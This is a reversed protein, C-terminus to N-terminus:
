IEVFSNPESPEQNTPSNDDCISNPVFTSNLVLLSSLMIKRLSGGGDVMSMHSMNGDILTMMGSIVMVQARVLSNDKDQELPTALCASHKKEGVAGALAWITCEPAAHLTLSSLM